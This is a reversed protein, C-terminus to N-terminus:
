NVKVVTMCSWRFYVHFRSDAQVWVIDGVQLDAAVVSTGADINNDNSLRLTSVTNGNLQVSFQTNATPSNMVVSIQYLGDKECTFRGSNRVAAVDVIGVHTRVEDFRILTHDFCFWRCFCISDTGSFFFYFM